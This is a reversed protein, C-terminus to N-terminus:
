VSMYIRTAGNFVRNVCLLSRLIPCIGLSLEKDLEAAESLIVDIADNQDGLRSDCWVHNMQQSVRDVYYVPRTTPSGSAKLERSQFDVFRHGTAEWAADNDFASLHFGGPTLVLCIARGSKLKFFM